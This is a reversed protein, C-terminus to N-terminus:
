DGLAVAPDAGDEGDTREERAREDEGVVGVERERDREDLHELREVGNGNEEDRKGELELLGVSAKKGNDQHDRDAAGKGGVALEVKLHDAEDALTGSDHELGRTKDHDLDEEVAELHVGNDREVVVGGDTGDDVREDEGENLSKLGEVVEVANADEDEEGVGTDGKGEVDSGHEKDRNTRTKDEGKGTNELVNYTAEARVRRRWHSVKTELEKDGARDKGKARLDGSELDKTVRSHRRQGPRGHGMAWPLPTSWRSGRASGSVGRLMESAPRTVKLVVPPLYFALYVIGVM